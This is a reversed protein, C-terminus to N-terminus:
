GGSVLAERVVRAEDGMRSFQSDPTEDQPNHGSWPQRDAASRDIELRVLTPGALRLLAELEADLREASGFSHASSYGVAAALATWSLRGAAPLAFDAGGEFWVGNDFVFHVFNAPMQGAVTALSGLQMLLSGDGDLVLVQREPQALAIGLGLASAGGMLPVCSLNLPNPSMKPFFRLSSMTSIAVADVPRHAAIASVAAETSMAM